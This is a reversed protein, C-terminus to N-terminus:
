TTRGVFFFACFWCEGVMSISNKQKLLYKQQTKKLLEEGGSISLLIAEPYRGDNLCLDVAGEFNGVLLAQSILGDTDQDWPSLSCNSKWAHCVIVDHQLHQDCLRHFPNVVHYLSRFTPIKMQPRALSTQPHFPVQPELMQLKKLERYTCYSTNWVLLAFYLLWFQTLQRHQTASRQPSCSCRRQWIKPMSEMVMLIFGREWVNQFRFLVLSKINYINPFRVSISCRVCFVKKEIDDKSFGLLKLFKVRAEDEFNVQLSLFSALFWLLETITQNRIHRGPPVEM